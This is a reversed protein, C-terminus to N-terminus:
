QKVLVEDIYHNKVKHLIIDARGMTPLIFENLNVLNITEWVQTAMALAEQRDGNAYQYYYNTPDDKALDMLMEFRELYWQRILSEEADVFLSVDFFDSVFIEHNAPLQLVNIGEVILIDPQDIVDYREPLIDYVEHSYQPSRVERKGSKVDTLFRILRKMDYSEPFGKRNMIGREQLIANPYLFGDTTMLDVKLDRYAKELLNQLLRATTSKGVAVSGSIGIIFPTKVSQRYLFSDKMQRLELFGQRYCDILYLLPMYIESVDKQDIRDNLSTLERLEEKSITVTRSTRLQKWQERDFEHYVSRDM